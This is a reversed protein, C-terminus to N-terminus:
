RHYNVATHNDFDPADLLIELQEEEDGGPVLQKMDMRSRSSPTLGYEASFARIESLCKAAIVVEGRSKGQPTVLGHERIALQCQVYMSVTQCYAGLATVDVDSLVRMQALLPAIRDWEQIAREDLFDPPTLLDEGAPPVPEHSIARKGPNGLAAELASPRRRVGGPRRM